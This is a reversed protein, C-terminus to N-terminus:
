APLRLSTRPPWISLRLLTSEPQVRRSRRRLLVVRPRPCTPSPPTGGTPSRLFAADAAGGAGVWERGTRRVLVLGIFGSIFAAILATLPPLALAPSDDDPPAQFAELSPPAGLNEGATAYITVGEGKDLDEVTVRLHGPTVQEADCGGTDGTGGRDCRVDTAVWPAAIDITVSRIPVEWATGVADFALEEGRM